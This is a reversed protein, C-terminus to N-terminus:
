PRPGEPTEPRRASRDCRIRAYANELAFSSGPHFGRHCQRCQDEAPKRAINGVGRHRAGPGHCAECSVVPEVSIGSPRALRTAHCVLCAPDRTSGKLDAYARAHATGLWAQYAEAHCARCSASGAYGGVGVPSPPTAAIGAESAAARVPVAQQRKAAEHAKFERVWREVEPDEGGRGDLALVRNAFGATGSRLETLAGRVRDAEAQLGPSSGAAEERQRIEVLRAELLAAQQLDRPQTWARLSGASLDLVGLYRGRDGASLIATDGIVHPSYLLQSSGGGVVLAAGPVQRVLEKETEFGLNSLCVVADVSPLQALAVRLAEAPPDVQFGFQHDAGSDAPLVGLVAVRLGGWDVIRWRPFPYTGAADRLNTSVWPVGPERALESLFALGSALDRRGVNVAAAGDAVAARAILRARDRLLEEEALGAVPSQRFLLDGGDVYLLAAGEKRM